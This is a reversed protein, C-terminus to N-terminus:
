GRRGRVRRLSPPEDDIADDAPLPPLPRRALRAAEKAPLGVIQLVVAATREAADAGIEGNLRGVICALVAGGAAITAVLPESVAFRRAAIGADIDRALHKGLGRRLGNRGNLATRALFRGFAEDMEARRVTHRIGAALREAPDAIAGALRDGAAAFTELADHMLAEAIAEKSPFHNFFSGFGVDAADTIEQISAAHVGKRAM